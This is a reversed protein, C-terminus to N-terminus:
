KTSQSQTVSNKLKYESANEYADSVTQTYISQFKLLMVDTMGQIDKGESHAQLVQDRLVLVQRFATEAIQSWNFFPDEESVAKCRAWLDSDVSINAKVKRSKGSPRAM